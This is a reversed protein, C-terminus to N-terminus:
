GNIAYVILLIFFVIVISMWIPALVWFWSWDIIGALKFAIFLLALLTYFGGGVTVNVDDGM